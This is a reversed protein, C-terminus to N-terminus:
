RVRRLRLDDFWAKGSVFTTGEQHGAPELELVQGLCGPPVAVDFTFAQWESSGLFRPSAGVTAARGAADLCRVLWQVGRVSQLAELRALGFFRYSGPSLALFQRIAAGPIRKGTFTVRLARNGAAGSALPFEVEFAPSRAAIWDFGAGGPAYEFSGNFVFGVDALRERPLTNLWLQYASDWHGAARMRETVCAIEESHARGAAVRRVLLAAVALPEVNQACAHALFPGMWGTARAALDEFPGRYGAVAVIRAFLPFIWARMEPYHEALRDLRAVAQAVRGQSLDFAAAARLAVRDVPAIELAAAYARAAGQADGARERAAGIEVLAGVDAPNERLIAAFAAQPAGEPIRLAPRNTDGYIVANVHLIHWLLLLAIAALAIRARDLTM